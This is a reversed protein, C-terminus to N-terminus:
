IVKRIDGIFYVFLIRYQEDTMRKGPVITNIIDYDEDPIWVRNRFKKM